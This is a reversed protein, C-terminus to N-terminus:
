YPLFGRIASAPLSARAKDGAVIDKEQADYSECEGAPFGRIDPYGHQKGSPAKEDEAVVPM